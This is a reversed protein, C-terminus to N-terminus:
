RESVVRLPSVEAGPEPAEELDDGDPEDGDIKDALREVATQLDHVVSSMRHLLLVMVMGVFMIVLGLAFGVLAVNPGASEHRIVIMGIAGDAPGADQRPGAAGISAPPTM